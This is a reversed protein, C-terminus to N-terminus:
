EDCVGTTADESGIEDWDKVTAPAFCVASGKNGDLHAPRYLTPTTAIALLADVTTFSGVACAQLLHQEHKARHARAAIVEGEYRRLHQLDM